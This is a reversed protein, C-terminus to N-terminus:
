FTRNKKKEREKKEKGKEKRTKKNKKRKGKKERTKGRKQKMKKWSTIARHFPWLFFYRASRPGNSVYHKDGKANNVVVSVTVHHPILRGGTTRTSPKWLLGHYQCCDKAHAADANWGM